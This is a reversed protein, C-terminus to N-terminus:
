GKWIMEVILSQMAEAERAKEKWVASITDLRNAEILLEKLTDDLSQSGAVLKYTPTLVMKGSDCFRHVERLASDPSSGFTCVIDIFEHTALETFLTTM